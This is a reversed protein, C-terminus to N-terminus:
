YGCGFSVSWLNTDLELLRDINTHGIARGEAWEWAVGKLDIVNMFIYFAPKDFKRTASVPCNTFLHSALFSFQMGRWLSAYTLDVLIFKM